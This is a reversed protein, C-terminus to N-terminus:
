SIGVSVDGADDLINWRKLLQIRKEDTIWDSNRGVRLINVSMIYELILGTVLNLKRLSCLGVMLCDYKSNKPILGAVASAMFPRPFDTPLEQPLEQQNHQNSANRM